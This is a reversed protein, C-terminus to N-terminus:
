GGVRTLLSLYAGIRPDKPAERRCQEWAARAAAHDGALYCAMGLSARADLSPREKLIGELEARARAMEGKDLLLRALRYEAAADRWAGEAYRRDGAREHDTRKDCAAAALVATM